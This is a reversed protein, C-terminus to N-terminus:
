PIVLMVKGFNSNSAMYSHAQGIEDLLFTRDIIPKVLGRELLPMVQNAFLQTAAIKEELPRSRLLTGFIRARRGMLMGLDFEAKSGGMTGVVVMRGRLALSQLNQVLYPGGGLDLIVNVGTNDTHKGIEAAFDDPSLAVDLGLERARELKSADRATGFVHAGTVHALQVAATGVGSGAAHILVREGLALEAQTFLADHATIFVEPVAAAAVDDLTDPVPVLMREHSLVFEAQAGGGVIGCVREGGRWRRVDAGVTEVVGAFEMGPIDAPAGPPAAYGGARQMLDARNLGAARVRVLVQDAAPEPRPVEQIALVEPGGPKTIVAARM